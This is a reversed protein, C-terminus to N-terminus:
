RSAHSARLRACDYLFYHRDYLPDDARAVALKGLEQTLVVFDLAVDACVYAIDDANALKPSAPMRNTDRQYRSSDVDATGLRELRHLRRVGEIANGRNFVMGYVQPHSAYSARQLVFWSFRVDDEWYVSAPAPMLPLFAAQVARLGAASIKIQESSIGVQRLWLAGAAAVGVMGAALSWALLQRRGAAHWIALMLVMGLLANGGLRLLTVAWQMPDGIEVGYNWYLASLPASSQADVGAVWISLVALLLGCAYGYLRDPLPAPQGAQWCLIACALLTVLGGYSDRAFIGLMCAALVLQFVRGRQWCAALLAALAIVSALQVLWLARWAQIQLLLVNHFVSTGLWTALLGLAGTLAACYYFRARWGTSLWAAALVLSFAVTVRSAVETFNWREWTVLGTLRFVGAYWEPDMTQLLRQFPLFGLVAGAGAVLVGAALLPVVRRPDDSALYLLAFLLTGLTMLPHTVLSLPLLLALWRWKGRLLCAIALMGLAEAFIRPTLYPEALSIARIPDYDTPLLLLWALGVWLMAGRLLGSLLYWAAALWLASGLAHLLQSGADLGLAQIFVSYLPSFLTFQDQSGFMFYLDHEFQGPHLLRLAQAAYLRTDHWIGAWPRAYLWVALLALLMLSQRAGWRAALQLPPALPQAAGPPGAPAAPLQPLAQTM